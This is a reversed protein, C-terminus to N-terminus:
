YKSKVLALKEELLQLQQNVKQESTCSFQATEILKQLQKAVAEKSSKPSAWSDNWQNTKKLTHKIVNKFQDKFAMSEGIPTDIKKLEVTRGFVSLWDNWKNENIWDYAKYGCWPVGFCDSIIAGHMAECLITSSARVETVFHEIDSTRADILNIGLIDCIEQWPGQELSEAHPILSIQYKKEVPTTFINRLFYAPDLIGLSQDLSLEECTQKGRVCIVDWNEDIEPKGGYGYGSGFVVYKDAKPVKNHLITGIGVFLTSADEDFFDPLLRNWIWPNLDDGFNEIESTFYHLKM